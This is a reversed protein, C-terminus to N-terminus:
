LISTGAASRARISALTGKPNQNFSANQKMEEPLRFHNAYVTLEGAIQSLAKCAASTEEAVQTSQGTMRSVQAINAHIEHVASSQQESITAIHSAQHGANRALEHIANLVTGAAETKGVGAEVQGGSSQMANITEATEQQISGVIQRVEVTAHTTREALRRVESAVVAFGRGAEGARAAEIAANLALLNTQGAIDEITTVIRGITQSHEGLADIRTSVQETAQAIGRVAVVAATVASTGDNASNEMQSASHAAQEAFRAVEQIAADMEAMASAAQQTQADNDKANEASQHATQSLEESAAALLESSRHIARAADRLGDSTKEIAALMRAIEEPGSVEITDTLDCNALQELHVLIRQIGKHLELGVHRGVWVLVVLMTAFLIGMQVSRTKVLEVAAADNSQDWQNTLETIRDVSTADRRYAAELPGKRAAEARAHDGALLAPFLESEAAAYWAETAQNSEGAILDHLAGAPLVKIYNEHGKRYDEHAARIAAILADRETPSGADEAQIALSYVKQLSQPPNEFDAAVANSLRKAEFFKSGVQIQKVTFFSVMAFLALAAIGSGSLLRLKNKISGTSM